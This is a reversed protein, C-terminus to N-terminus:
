HKQFVAGLYHMNSLHFIFCGLVTKKLFAEIDLYSLLSLVPAPLNKGEWSPSTLPLPTAQPRTRSKDSNKTEDPFQDAPLCHYPQPAPLTNARSSPLIPGFGLETM